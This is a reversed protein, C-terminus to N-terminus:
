DSSAGGLQESWSGRRDPQDGEPLVGRRAREGGFVEDIKGFPRSSTGAEDRESGSGSDWGRTSTTINLIVQPQLPLQLVPTCDGVVGVANPLGGVKPQEALHPGSPQKILVATRTPIQTSIITSSIPM